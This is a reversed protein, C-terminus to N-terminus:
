GTKFREVVSSLESARISLQSAANSAETGMASSQGAKDAIRVLSEAIEECVSTQQESASAIQENMQNIVTISETITSLSSEADGARQAAAGSRQQSQVMANVAQQSGKELGEIMASIEETSKQTKGALARVEDAVVAFGRGQEGARAAEIAANLALLNTQEAITQIVGLVANIKDVEQGLTTVTATADNIEGALKNVESVAESVVSNATKAEDDCTNAAAAAASANKSIESAASTMETVATAVQDTDASQQGILQTVLSTRDTIESTGREVSHSVGKVEEVLLGLTQLFRNFKAALDGLEFRDSVKLRATLDAEGQSLEIVSATIEALPKRISGSLLYSVIGSVILAIFAVLGFLLIVEALNEAANEEMSQIVLDIDDFYFGAGLAIDWRTLFISYTTKALAEAEGLKPFWYTSHGGGSKGASIINRILYNGKKDQLNWFNDGLGKNSQGQFVRDGSATYGFVYGSEGFKLNKLIPLAQELSGGSEYIHRISGYAMDIYHKLEQKKQDVLAERVQASQQAVLSNTESSVTVYLVTTVLMVPLVALLMLKFKISMKDEMLMLTKAPKIHTYNLEFLSDFFLKCGM